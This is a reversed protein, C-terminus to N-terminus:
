SAEQLRRRLSLLRWMCLHCCVAAIGSGLALPNKGSIIAVMALAICLFMLLAFFTIGQAYRTLKQQQASNPM